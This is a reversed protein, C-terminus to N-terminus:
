KRCNNIPANPNIFSPYGSLNKNGYNVSIGMGKPNLEKKRCINSNCQFEEKLPITIENPCEKICNKQCAYEYNLKMIKDANRQLFQKYDYSNKINNNKQIHFSIYNNDRYDTFNRGDSMRPPSNKDQNNSTNFCLDM